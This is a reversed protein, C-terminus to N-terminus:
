SGGGQYRAQAVGEPTLRWRIPRSGQRVVMGRAELRVLMGLVQDYTWRRSRFRITTLRDELQRASPAFTYDGLLGLLQKQRDTM